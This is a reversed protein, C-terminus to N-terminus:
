FTIVARAGRHERADALATNIDQPPRRSTVMDDTRLRGTLALAAYRPIDHRTRVSGM